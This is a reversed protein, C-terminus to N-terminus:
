QFHGNITLKGMLFPSKGYSHLLKGSPLGEVNILDEPCVKVQFFTNQVNRYERIEGLPFAFPSLCPCSQLACSTPNPGTSIQTVGLVNNQNM